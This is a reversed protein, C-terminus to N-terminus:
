ITQYCVNKLNFYFTSQFKLHYKFKHEVLFISTYESFKIKSENAFGRERITVLITSRPDEYINLPIDTIFPNLNLCYLILRSIM